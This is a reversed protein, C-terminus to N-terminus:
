SGKQVMVRKKELKNNLTYTSVFIEAQSSIPINTYGRKKFLIKMNEYTDSTEVWPEWLMRSDYMKQNITALIDTPIALNKINEDTIRTAAQETSLFKAIIRIGRKDRKVFYFYFDVLKQKAM